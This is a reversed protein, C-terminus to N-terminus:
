YSIIIIISVCFLQCPIRSLAEYEEVVMEEEEGIGGGRGRGRRRGGGEKGEVEEEEDVKEEKEM